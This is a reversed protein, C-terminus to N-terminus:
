LEDHKKEFESELRYKRIGEIKAPTTRDKDELKIFIKKKGTSDNSKLFDDISNKFGIEVHEMFFDLFYIYDKLTKNEHEEPIKISLEELLPYQIEKACFSFLNENDNALLILGPLGFLKWPGYNCPIAKTFWCVYQRGRFSGVAEFISYNLYVSDRGTIQWDIEVWEDKVTFAKMPKIETQRLIIEKQNFNRYVQMGKSDKSSVHVSLANNTIGFSSTKLQNFTDLESISDTDNLKDYIFLSLSDNFFLEGESQIREGKYNRLQFAYKVKGDVLAFSIKARSFLFLFLFFFRIYM